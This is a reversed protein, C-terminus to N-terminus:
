QHYTLRKVASTTFAQKIEPAINQGCLIYSNITNSYNQRASDESLKWTPVITHILNVPGYAIGDEISTGVWWKGEYNIWSAKTNTWNERSGTVNKKFASKKGRAAMERKINESEDFGPPQAM